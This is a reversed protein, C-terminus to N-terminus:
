RRAPPCPHPPAHTPQITRLSTPMPKPPWPLLRQQHSTHWSVTM